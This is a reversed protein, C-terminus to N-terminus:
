KFTSPQSNRTSPEVAPREASGRLLGIFNTVRKNKQFGMAEMDPLFRCDDTVPVVVLRLGIERAEDVMRRMCEIAEPQPISADVWGALVPIAGLSAYAIIQPTGSSGAKEFVHTPAIAPEEGAARRAANLRRLDEVGAVRRLTIGEGGSVQCRISSVESNVSQMFKSDGGRKM